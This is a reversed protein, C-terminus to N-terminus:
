VPPRQSLAHLSADSGAAHILRRSREITQALSSPGAAGLPREPDLCTAAPQQIVVLGAVPFRDLSECAATYRDLERATLEAVTLPETSHVAARVCAHRQAGRVLCEVSHTGVREGFTGAALKECCAFCDAFTGAARALGQRRLFDVDRQHGTVTVGIWLDTRPEKDARARDLIVKVFYESFEADSAPSVKSVRKGLIRMVGTHGATSTTGVLRFHSVRTMRRVGAVM